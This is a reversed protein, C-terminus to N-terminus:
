EFKLALKEKRKDLIDQWYQEDEILCRKLHQRAEAIRDIYDNVPHTLYGQSIQESKERQKLLDEIKMLSDDITKAEQEIESNFSQIDQMINQNNSETMGLIRQLKELQGKNTESWEGLAGSLTRDGTEQPEKPIDASVM